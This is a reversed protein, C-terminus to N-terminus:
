RADGDLGQGFRERGAEIAQKTFRKFSFMCAIWIPLWFTYFFAVQILFNENRDECKNEGTHHGKELQLKCFLKLDYVFVLADIAYCFCAAGLIFVQLNTIFRVLFAMQVREAFFYYIYLALLAIAPYITSYISLIGKKVTYRGFLNLNLLVFKGFADALFLCNWGHFVTKDDLNLARCDLWEHAVSRDVSSTSEIKKFERPVASASTM